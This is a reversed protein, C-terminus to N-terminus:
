LETSATLDVNIDNMSFIPQSYSLLNPRKSSLDLSSCSRSRVKRLKHLHVHMARKCQVNYKPDSMPVYNQPDCLHQVFLKTESWYLSFLYIM